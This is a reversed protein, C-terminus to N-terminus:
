WWKVKYQDGLLSVVLLLVLLYLILIVVALLSTQRQPALFMNVMGTLVNAVLFVLLQHRNIFCLWDVKFQKKPLQYVMMISEYLVVAWVIYTSNVLRRSPPLQVYFDFCVWLIMLLAVVPFRSQNMDFGYSFIVGLLYLCVYGPLSVFGERNAVFFNTDRLGQEMFSIFLSDQFCLQEMVLLGLTVVLLVLAYRVRQQLRSGRSRRLWIIFPESFFMTLAMTFYFNWDRGYEDVIKPYGTIKLGIYRMFGLLLLPSTIKLIPSRRRCAVLGQGYVLAGVGADMLSYGFLHTKALRRPFIPFDVALIAACIMIMSTGRTHNLYNLSTSTTPTDLQSGPTQKNTGIFTLVCAMIIYICCQPVIMPVLTAM